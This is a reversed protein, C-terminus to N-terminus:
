SSSILITDFPDYATCAQVEELSDERTASRVLSVILSWIRCAASFFAAAARGGADVEAPGAEELGIGAGSWRGPAVDLLREM